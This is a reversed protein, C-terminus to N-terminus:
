ITTNKIWILPSIESIVQTCLKLSSICPNNYSNPQLCIVSDVTELSHEDLYPPILSSYMTFMAAARITLVIDVCTWVSQSYQTEWQTEVLVNLHKSRDIRLLRLAWLTNKEYKVTNPHFNESFPTIGYILRCYIVFEGKKVNITCSQSRNGKLEFGPLNTWILINIFIHLRNASSMGSWKWGWLPDHKQENCISYHINFVVRATCKASNFSPYDM